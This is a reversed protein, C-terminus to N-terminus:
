GSQESAGSPGGQGPPASAPPAPVPNVLEGPRVKQIGAVVVRDGASVGKVVVFDQAIQPGLTVQQQKVKNDPGILLVFSGTEETQVAAVPVMPREEHVARRVEVNVYAGPLLLGDPNPFDAYVNVTGTASDVQNDQFAIAGPHNYESGDPLKLQVALKAGSLHGAARARAEVTVIQRYSVAFVVRIPSLENITLLAPTSPTVLNGKTLTVRGVRGSIAASITCYSLNLAAEAVNGQASVVAAQDQDRTSTAQDLSAQSAVGRKTLDLAREYAIQALRLAAQASALQGQASQLTAEYQERQLQFLVQGASVNSGDKVMVNDVFATVRPVVQVSQIAMVHGIFSYVPAVDKVAVPVFIVAPPPAATQAEASGRAIFVILAAAGVMIRIVATFQGMAQERRQGVGAFCSGGRRAGALSIWLRVLHTHRGPAGRVPRGISGTHSDGLARHVSGRWNSAFAAPIQVELESPGVRPDAKLCCLGGGGPVPREIKTHYLRYKQTIAKIDRALM